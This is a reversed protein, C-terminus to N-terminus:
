QHEACASRSLIYINRQVEEFGTGQTLGGTSKLSGMFTQEIIHDPSVGGWIHGETRLVLYYGVMFDQYVQPSNYELNNMKQLYLWASKVYNNHGCAAFYPLM